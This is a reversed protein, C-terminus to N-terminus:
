QGNGMTLTIVATFTGPTFYQPLLALTMTVTIYNDTEATSQSTAHIQPGNLIKINPNNVLDEVTAQGSAMGTYPTLGNVATVGSPDYDFGPAIVDTRPTIVNSRLVLSTIGVGIDSAAIARGGDDPASPTVSYMTSAVINYGAANNSRIRFQVQNSTPSNSTGPNVTFSVVATLTGNSTDTLVQAHACAPGLLLVAAAVSGLGRM